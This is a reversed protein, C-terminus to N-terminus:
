TALFGVLLMINFNKKNEKQKKLLIEKKKLIRWRVIYVVCCIPCGIWHKRLNKLHHM